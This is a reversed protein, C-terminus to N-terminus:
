GRDEPQLAGYHYRGAANWLMWEEYGADEVARIQERVEEEEYSIHNKLWSATFDQLWPRVVARMKEEGKRGGEENELDSTGAPGEGAEGTEDTEDAENEGDALAERSDTLAGLITEYPHMDPHDLGFNGDGYHSPYIMPCIYDLREALTGYNQGVAEADRGGAIVAGFVDASVYVGEPRLKDYIYGAFETIIDTKTRGEGAAAADAARQLAPDTSFRIYDFQVEDFGAKAAQRGAEALYDWVERCFPNMWAMGDRDKLVAGNGDRFCWQPCKEGVFPDRFAAVRAITYIGQERLRELLGPLDGIYERCAGLGGFVPSDTEATIYGNDDKFDIVVANLETEGIRSILREMAEGNGAAYASVYIGRVKVPGSRRDRQRSCGAGSGEGEKSSVERGCEEGKGPEEGSKGSVEKGCEEGKGPEEGSKGYVEKGSEKREKGFAGKESEERVNGAKSPEPPAYRTCGALSLFAAALLAALKCGKWVEAM